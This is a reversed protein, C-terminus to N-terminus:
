ASAAKRLLSRLIEPDVPRFAATPEQRLLFLPPRVHLSAIGSPSKRLRTCEAMADACTWIGGSGAMMLRRAYRVLEV